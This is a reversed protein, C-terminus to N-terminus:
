DDDGDLFDEVEKALIKHTRKTPHIGDWFLFKRPKECVADVEVFFTLCPAAINKFGFAKPDAVVESLFGFADFRLINIEPLMLKLGDLADALGANYAASLFAAAATAEPGQSTVVPAVGLNPTNVILFNRAGASYLAAINDAVGMVGATVIADANSPDMLAARIDNGGFWLVYLGDSPAHSFDSQFLTVQGTLDFPGAGGAQAGGVAYNTHKGPKALAAKGGKKLDLKKALREIWVKSNTFRGNEYPLSPIPTFPAVATAGGSLVVANGPDSLSDGFVVLTSFEDDAAANQFIAACLLLCLPTLKHIFSCTITFHRFTM